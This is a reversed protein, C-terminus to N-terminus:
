SFRVIMGSYGRNDGSNDCHFLRFRKTAPGALSLHLARSGRHNGTGYTRQLLILIILNSGSHHAM